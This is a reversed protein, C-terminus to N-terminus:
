GRRQRRRAVLGVLLATLAFFVGSRQDPAGGGFGCGGSGGLSHTAPGPGCVGDTCMASRCDAATACSLGDPKGCKDDTFCINSACTTAGTCDDGNPSGCVTLVQNCM